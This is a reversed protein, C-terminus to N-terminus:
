FDTIQCRIIEWDSFIKNKMNWHPGRKVAFLCLICYIVGYTGSQTRDHSETKGRNNELVTHVNGEMDTMESTLAGVEENDNRFSFMWM